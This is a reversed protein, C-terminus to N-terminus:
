VSPGPSLCSPFKVAWARSLFYNDSRWTWREVGAAVIPAALNYEALGGAEKEASVAVHGTPSLAGPWTQHSRLLATELDVRTLPM